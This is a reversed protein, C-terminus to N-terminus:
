INDNYFTVPWGAAIFLMVEEGIVVEGSLTVGFEADNVLRGYFPRKISVSLCINFM